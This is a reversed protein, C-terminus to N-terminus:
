SSLLFTMPHGRLLIMELQIVPDGSISIVILQFNVKQKRAAPTVSLASLLVFDSLSLCTDEACRLLFEKETETVQLLLTTDRKEM